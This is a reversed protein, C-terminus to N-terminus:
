RRTIGKFKEHMVRMNCREAKPSFGEYHGMLTEVLYKVQLLRKFKIYYLSFSHVELFSDHHWSFFYLFM